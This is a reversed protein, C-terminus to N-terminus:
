LAEKIDVLHLDINRRGNWINERVSYLIDFIAGIEVLPKLEARSFAIASRREGSADKFIVKLHQENAGIWRYEVVEANNTQFLPEPNGEGIPELLSLMELLASTIETFSLIEDVEHVLLAAETKEELIFRTVDERFATLSERKVTFGAAQHHGGYHVLHQSARSLIQTINVEPISRASGVGHEGNLEIVLAPRAFAETLRNAVLGAIGRPWKESAAIIVSTEDTVMASIEQCADQTLEKRKKNIAVLQEGLEAAEELNRTSLLRFAIMPDGLRGAANMYPIIKYGLTQATIDKLSVGAIEALVRLGPRKNINLMALGFRVLAHNEGTLPMIDAITGLAAIDTLCKEFVQDKTTARLLAQAVKFAVGAGCLNKYPYTEDPRSCAVVAHANPLTEAAQHHDTVVVEVGSKTLKEIMEHDRIGCDTTIVLDAKKDFIKKVSTPNLGYGEDRTPLICEGKAGLHELTAVMIYSSTIGDVDYDGHVVIRSGAHIHRLICEQAKQMDKMQIPDGIDRQYSPHLFTEIADEGVVGRSALLRILLPSNEDGHIISNKPM